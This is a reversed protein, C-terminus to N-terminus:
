LCTVAQFAQIAAALLIRVVSAIPFDISSSKGPRGSPGIRTANFSAKSAPAELRSVGVSWGARSANRVRAPWGSIWLMEM